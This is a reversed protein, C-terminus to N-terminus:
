FLCPSKENDHIFVGGKPPRPAVIHLPKSSAFAIINIIFAATAAASEGYAATHKAQYRGCNIKKGPNIWRGYKVLNCGILGGPLFL